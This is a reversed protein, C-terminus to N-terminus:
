LSVEPLNQLMGALWLKYVTSNLLGKPEITKMLLPRIRGDPPILFRHKFITMPLMKAPVTFSIFINAGVFRHNYEYSGFFPSGTLIDLADLQASTPHSKFNSIQSKLDM